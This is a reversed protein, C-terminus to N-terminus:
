VCSVTQSEIDNGGSRPASSMRRDYESMRRDYEVDNCKIKRFNVFPSTLGSGLDTREIRM